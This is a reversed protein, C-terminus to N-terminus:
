PTVIGGSINLHLQKGAVSSLAVSLLSMLATVPKRLCHM